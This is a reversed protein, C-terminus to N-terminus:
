QALEAALTPWGATNDWVRWLTKEVSGGDHFVALYVGGERSAWGDVIEVGDIAAGEATRYQVDARFVDIYGEAASGGAKALGAFSGAWVIRNMRYQGTYSTRDEVPWSRMYEEVADQIKEDLVFGDKDLFLVTMGETEQWDPEQPLVFSEAFPASDEGPLTLTRAMAAFLKSYQNWDAAKADGYIYYSKQGAGTYFLLTREDGTLTSLNVFEGDFGGSDGAALVSLQAGDGSSFVIGNDGLNAAEWGEPVSLTWGDAATYVSCPIEESGVELTPGKEPKEQPAQVQQQPPPDQNEVPEATNWPQWAAVGIGLAALGALGVGIAIKMQKSLGKLKTLM